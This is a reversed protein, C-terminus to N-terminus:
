ARWNHGCQPCQLTDGVDATEADDAGGTESLDDAWMEGSLEDIAAQTTEDAVATDVPDPEEARSFKIEGDKFLESLDLGEDMSDQVREFDYTTFDASRNDAFALARADGTPDSLDLDTRQHVILRDGSSQIIIAEDIGQELAAKQAKNGAIIRGDKDVVISRGARLEGFSFDLIEAGRKSGVSANQDDQIFDATKGKKAKIAM